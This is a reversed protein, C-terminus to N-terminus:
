AARAGFPRQNADTRTLIGNSAVQGTNEHIQWEAAQASDDSELQRQLAERFQNKKKFYVITNHPV